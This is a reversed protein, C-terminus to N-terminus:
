LTVMEWIEKTAGAEEEEYSDISKLIDWFTDKFMELIRAAKAQRKKPMHHIETANLSAHIGGGAYGRLVGFAKPLNIGPYLINSDIYLYEIRDLFSYQINNINIEVGEKKKLQEIFYELSDNIIYNM